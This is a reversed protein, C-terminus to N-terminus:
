ELKCLNAALKALNKAPSTTAFFVQDVDKSEKDMEDGNDFHIGFNQADAM